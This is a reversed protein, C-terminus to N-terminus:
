FNKCLNLSEVSGRKDIVVSKSIAINDTDVKKKASTM